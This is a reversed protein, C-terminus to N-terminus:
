PSRRGDGDDSDRRRRKRKRANFRGVDEDEEESRRAAEVSSVQSGGHGDGHHRGGRGPKVAKSKSALRCRM